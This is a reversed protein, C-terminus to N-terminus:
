SPIRQLHFALTGKLDRYDWISDKTLVLDAVSHLVSRLRSEQPYDWPEPRRRLMTVLHKLTARKNTVAHYLTSFRPIPRPPTFGYSQLCNAPENVGLWFVKDTTGGFRANVELYYCQQDEPSYLFDFHYAGSLCTRRGFAKIKPMLGRPLETPRLRLALGEFKRDVLFADASLLDGGIRSTCQVVLNPLVRLPQAIVADRITWVKQVYHLLDAPSNAMAVKFWPSVANLGSPRLCLPYILPDIERVDAPDRIIHTPLVSFGAERALDIQRVKSALSQLCEFTPVLVECTDEFRSRNAALWLSNMDSVTALAGARVHKVVKLIAEIGDPTGVCSSELREAGAFCSSQVKATQGPTLPTLLYVAIGMAHCSRAFALSPPGFDGLFVVADLPRPSCTNTM